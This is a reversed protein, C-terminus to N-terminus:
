VPSIIYVVKGSEVGNFIHGRDTQHNVPLLM